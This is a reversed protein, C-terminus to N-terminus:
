PKELTGCKASYGLHAEVKAIKADILNQDRVLGLMDALACLDSYEQRIRERNNGYGPEDHHLGFRLAKSAAQAVEACEEMLIVLLHEERTV